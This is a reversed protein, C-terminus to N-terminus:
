PRSGHVRTMDSSTEPLGFGRRRVRIRRQFDEAREGVAIQHDHFTARVGELKVAKKWAKRRIIRAASM